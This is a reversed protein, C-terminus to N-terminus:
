NIIKFIHKYCTKRISGQYGNNLKVGRLCSSLKMRVNRPNGKTFGNGILYNAGDVLSEFIFIEMTDINTLSFKSFNKNKNLNHKSLKIKVEDNFCNRRFENVTALNYGFSMDNSKYYSIYYNERDILKSENCIETIEFIFSDKGYKNYSHQLYSNDHVGRDLMWFHKYERNKINVSSGVYVKNNQTNKIIYIGSSM